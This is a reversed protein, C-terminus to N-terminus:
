EVTDSFRMDWSSVRHPVAGCFTCVLALVCVVWTKQLFDQKTGKKSETTNTLQGKTNMSIKREKKINMLNIVM